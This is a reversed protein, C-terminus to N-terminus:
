AATLCSKQADAHPMSGKPANPKTLRCKALRGTQGSKNDVQTQSSPLDLLGLQRTTCSCVVIPHMANQPVLARAVGSVKPKGKRCCAQAPDRCPPLRKHTAQPRIVDAICLQAGCAEGSCGRRASELQVALTSRCPQGREQGSVYSKKYAARFTPWVIAARACSLFLSHWAKNLLWIKPAFFHGPRCTTRASATPKASISRPMGNVNSVYQRM